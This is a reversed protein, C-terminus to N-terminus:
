EASSGGDFVLAEGDQIIKSFSIQNIVLAGDEDIQVEDSGKVVGFTDKTATPIAVIHNETPLVEGNIEVGKVVSAMYYPEIVSHCEENSLNVRISDSSIMVGDANYWDIQYNWGIYRKKSSSAGYYTWSDSAQDYKALGLWTPQYRRGYEDTSFSTLIESDVQEGLHEIYGVADDSPAYTKFTMYYTDADGGEGVAQKSFVADAPCMVRIEDERYDILTGAPVGTIEYKVEPVYEEKITKEITEIREILSVSGETTPNIIEQINTVETKLNEVETIYQQIIESDESLGTGVATLEGYPTVGDGIKFVGTDTEFCPEGELPVVHKNLEWNAATDRRFQIKIKYAM